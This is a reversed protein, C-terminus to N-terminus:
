WLKRWSGIVIAQSNQWTRMLLKRWSKGANVLLSLPRIIPTGNNFESCCHEFVLYIRRRRKMERYSGLVAVKAPPPSVVTLTTGLYSSLGAPLAFHSHPLGSTESGRAGGVTLAESVSEAGSCSRGSSCARLRPRGCRGAGPAPGSCARRRSAPGCSAENQGGGGSQPPTPHPGRGRSPRRRPCCCSLCYCLCGRRGRGGRRVQILGLLETAAAAGRPPPTPFHKTEGGGGGGGGPLLCGGRGRRLGRGLRSGGGGPAPM